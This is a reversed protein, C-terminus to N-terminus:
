SQKPPALSGSDRAARTAEGLAVYVANSKPAPAPVACQAPALEGEPSGLNDYAQSAAIALPLAETPLVQRREQRVLATPSSATKAARSCARSGTSRQTRIPGRVAKHLASILNYHAEQQRDYLPMRRQLMERLGAPRAAAGFAWPM